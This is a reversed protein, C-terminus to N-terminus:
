NRVLLILRGVKQKPRKYIFRKTLITIKYEIEREKALTNIDETYLDNYYPLCIVGWRKSKINELCMERVGKYLINIKKYTQHIQEKKLEQKHIPWLRGETVIHTVNKLFNKNARERVDNKFITIPNNQYHSTSKRRKINAKASTINIDSGISNHWMANAMMITTAFGCFPDYITKPDKTNHPSLNILTQALKSPMMGVKMWSVPKEFDITEYLTINQYYTVIGILNETIEIIEIGSEKIEKDTKTKEVLKYRKTKYEKKLRLGLEKKEVGILKQNQLLTKLEEKSHIPGAKIISGINTEQIKSSLSFVVLNQGTPQINKAGISELEQIAIDKHKWIVAFLTKNM